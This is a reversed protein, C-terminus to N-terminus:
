SFITFVSVSPFASPISISGGYLTDACIPHRIESTFVVVVIVVVVTFAVICPSSSIQINTRLAVRERGIVVGVIVLWRERERDREREIVM